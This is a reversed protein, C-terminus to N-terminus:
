RTASVVELLSEAIKYHKEMGFWFVTATPHVPNSGGLQLSVVIGVGLNVRFGKRPVGRITLGKDTRRVLDGVKM